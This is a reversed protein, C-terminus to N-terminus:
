PTWLMPPADEYVIEIDRIWPVWGCVPCRLADNNPVGNVSNGMRPRNVCAQCVGKDRERAMQQLVLEAEVIVRLDGTM